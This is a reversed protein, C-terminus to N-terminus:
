KKRKVSIGYGSKKKFISAQLGKARAKSAIMIATVKKKSNRVM